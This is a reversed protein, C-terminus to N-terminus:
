YMLKTKWMDLASISNGELSYAMYRPMLILICFTKIKFWCLILTLVVYGYIGSQFTANHRIHACAAAVLDHIM